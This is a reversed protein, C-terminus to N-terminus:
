PEASLVQGDGKVRSGATAGNAGESWLTEVGEKSSHACSVERRREVPRVALGAPVRTDAGVLDGWILGVGKRARDGVKRQRAKILNSNATKRGSRRGHRRMLRNKNM